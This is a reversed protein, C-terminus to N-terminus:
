SNGNPAVLMLGRILDLSYKLMIDPTQPKEEVPERRRRMYFPEEEEINSQDDTEEGNEETSDDQSIGNEDPEESSPDGLLWGKRLLDRVHDDSFEVRVDPAIGVLDLSEGDPGTNAPTYYKATTLRLGNPLPNGDEDKELSVRLMSVTQVLGKGFTNKGKPGVLLARKHDQMAGAVIESASASAENIMLVMPWDVFQPNEAKYTQNQEPLRGKTAVITKGEKLFLDSVRISEGLLGGSNFRLDLILGKVGRRKMETLVKQLDKSVHESFGTLRVYGIHEDILYEFFPTVHPGDDVNSYVNEIKIRDRIVTFPIRESSSPRFVTFSVETGVPGTLKDVADSTTFDETSEGEIEVIRDWAQLGARAAPTGPIPSVVTLVGMSDMNIHIGIGSFEGETDKELARYNESGLYGSHPDLADFVGQLAAKFIREQDVEEVYKEDIQVIIEAMLEAFRAYQESFEEDGVRGNKIKDVARVREDLTTLLYTTMTLLILGAILLGKETKGAFRNFIDPM